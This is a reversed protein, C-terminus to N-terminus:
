LPELGGYESNVFKNYIREKDQESMGEFPNKEPAADIRSNREHVQQSLKLEYQNIEAETMGSAKMIDRTAQELKIRQM